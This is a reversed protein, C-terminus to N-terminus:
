RCEREGVAVRELYPSTQEGKERERTAARRCSGDEGASETEAFVSAGGGGVSKRVAFLVFLDVDPAVIVCLEVKVLTVSHTEADLALFPM